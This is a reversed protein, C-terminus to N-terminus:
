RLRHTRTYLGRARAVENVLLSAFVPPAPARARIHVIFFWRSSGTLEPSCSELVGKLKSEMGDQLTIPEFVLFMGRCCDKEAEDKSM